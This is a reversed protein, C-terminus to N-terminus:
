SCLALLLEGNSNHKGVGHCGFVEKWKETDSGTRVYFDGVLVFRDDAPVLKITNKLKSYLQEKIKESHTMTPAYAHVLSLLM